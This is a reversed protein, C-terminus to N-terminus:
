IKEHVKYEPHKKLWKYFLKGDDAFLEEGYVGLLATMIYWPVSAVHRGGPSPEGALVAKSHAERLDKVGDLARRHRPMRDGLRYADTAWDAENERDLLLNPGSIIEQLVEASHM